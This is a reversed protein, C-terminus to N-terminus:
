RSYFELIANINFLSDGGAYKPVGQIVAEKKEFDFKVWSPQTYAKLREDLSAFLPKTSSGSRITLIDGVKLRMSPITIRKGNLLLHGHSIIQRAALRTPAFGSRYAVNDARFELSEFLGATAKSGKKALAEKVYKSFQKETMCYTFRAKQKELLQTGFESKPRSFSRGTKEKRAQSLVYKQTQTKEFIPAGLRRAIKYKPGIIM